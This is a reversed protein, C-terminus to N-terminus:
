RVEVAFTRALPRIAGQKVDVAWAAVTLRGKPLGEMPLVTRFASHTMRENKLATSVDASDLDTPLMTWPHPVSGAECVTLLVYDAAGTGDRQSSWGSVALWEGAVVACGSFVGNSTDTAKGNYSWHAMIGPEWRILRLIHHSELESGFANLIGTNPLLLALAPNGPLAKSWQWATLFAKRHEGINKLTQRGNWYSQFVQPICLLGAIVPIIRLLPTLLRRDPSFRECLSSWALWGLGAVAIYLYGSAATYRPSMAQSEGFGSRGMSAVAGSAVAYLGLALWPYSGTFDRKKFALGLCVCALALFLLSVVVGLCLAKKEDGFFAGAWTFFYRALKVPDWSFPPSDSPRRYGHFYFLLNAIGAAAYVAYWRMRKKDQEGGGTQMLLAAGPVPVALLWLVMGNSWSWTAVTALLSNWLVKERLSMGSLNVHLAYLLAVPPWVLMFANAYTWIESNPWFLVLNMVLSMALIGGRKVAPLRRVLGHLLLSVVCVMAFTACMVRRVDWGGFWALPIFILRPFFPRSENHQAFMQGLAFKGQCLLVLQHGPTGWDDHFPVDVWVHVIWPFLIMAPVLSVLFLLMCFKGAAPLTSTKPKNLCSLM